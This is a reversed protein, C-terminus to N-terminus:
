GAAGKEWGGAMEPMVAAGDCGSARSGAAWGGTAASTARRAGGALAALVGAHLVPFAINPPRWAGLLLLWPARGARDSFWCRMAM